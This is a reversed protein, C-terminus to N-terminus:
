EGSGVGCAQEPPHCLGLHVEVGLHAQAAVRRAGVALPPHRVAAISEVHELGHLRLPEGAVDLAVKGVLAARVGGRPRRRKERAALRDLAFAEAVREVRKGELHRHAWAAVQRRLLRRRRRRRKLREPRVQRRVRRRERHLRHARPQLVHAGVLIAAAGHALAGVKDDPLIECLRQARRRKLAPSKGGNLPSAIERRKPVVCLSVVRRSIVWSPALHPVLHCSISILHRPIVSLHCRSSVLHCPIVRNRDPSHRRSGGRHRDKCKIGGRGMAEDCRQGSTSRAPSCRQM